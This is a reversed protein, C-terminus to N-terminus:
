AAPTGTGRRVGSGQVARAQEPPCADETEESLEVLQALNVNSRSM